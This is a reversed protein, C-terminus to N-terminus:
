QIILVEYLEELIGEYEDGFTNYFKIRGGKQNFPALDMDDLTITVSRGIHEKIMKLWEKQEDSFRRGTSEQSKLWNTFKENVTDTFPRLTKEKKISYKIISILDTLKTVPNSTVKSADLKKYSSWLLKPTLNYPPKKIADALDNIDRFTIKRSKVPMSYIIDLAILENRNKEVFEDFSKITKKSLREAEESFGADILKDISIEDIILENQKKIELITNRLQPLDFIQSAETISKKAAEEIQKNTPEETNFMKRADEVHKDIDAGDLIKNIIQSITLGGSARTIEEMEKENLQKHFKSLRYALTKLTDEDANGEATIRMLNEFSIGTKRNLSYTDTKAHECVGVADIIVFHDKVKADPTVDQLDVNKITRTGRGKMQDFYIESHVNRMFIICELPKIDTGTAIMDVTVAIRPNISNRFSRIIDEPKKGTTKYTIKQCFENGEGFVERVIKTIDDAHSDSKAFILTKPVLKRDPFIVPLDNKFTTIVLRIQDPVIVAKDLQEAGFTYEKDLTEYRKKRTMKDRIEIIEQAPITSGTNTIETQIRYVHYTVNVEDAVAREHPYFMVQNNNFFGLTHKSPTATLGILFADFYDLVQKWRNYISRHCEDIVIFDFKDIPINPNYEVNIQDNDFKSEFESIEEEMENFENKGKLISFLRQVTSIIVSDEGITQTQLHKVTYLDTFKRGDNPTEYQQFENLAQRGLNARDVLFLIRKANAFKLLRYIFTVATFTKGSGTAMQILARPRNEAFSKELNKIAEIQCSWLNKYDIVPIDQLKARLTKVEMLLNELSKPKHFAFVKRTRYKPDRRDTFQTEIGTTEYSFPPRRVANPFKEALKTLYKGSQETVGILPYGFKKAEVVGIPQGRIFLVYDATNKGLPFERVAVGLSANRNLENYDQITWGSEKLMRDIEERAKNEPGMM